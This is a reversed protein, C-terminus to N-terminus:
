GAKQTSAKEAADKLLRANQGVHSYHKHLMATGKQGLLAAVTTDPIGAELARTAFSHRGLGYAIVRFGLRESVDVLRRVIVNACYPNGARTRFLYGAGHKIRQGELIAMAAKNFHIIRDAGHRATKHQKLRALSNAWDLSEAKLRAVEQPRAGSERLVKLLEPLDAKVWEHRRLATLAEAFQEDTLATDAGRSEMPPLHIKLKIGAGALLRQVTALHHHQTSSSWGRSGAWEEIEDPTLSVIARHGFVDTLAGLCRRYSEMTEHLLRDSAVRKQAALLFSVVAESVTPGSSQPALAAVIGTLKDILAKAALDAGTQDNPDTVNLPHQRNDHTV